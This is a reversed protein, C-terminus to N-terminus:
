CNSTCIDGSSRTCTGRSACRYDLHDSYPSNPPGMYNMILGDSESSMRVNRLTATDSQVGFLSLVKYIDTPSLENELDVYEFSALGHESFVLSGLFRQKAAPSLKDLPSADLRTVALYDQLDEWSKIPALLHQIRRLAEAQKNSSPLAQGSVEVPPHQTNIPDRQSEAGIAGASALFVLVAGYIPKM